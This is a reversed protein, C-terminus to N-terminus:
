EKKSNSLKKGLCSAPGEVVTGTSDVGVEGARVSLSRYISTGDSRVAALYYVIEITVGDQDSALQCGIWNRKMAEDIDSAFALQIPLILFSCALITKRM